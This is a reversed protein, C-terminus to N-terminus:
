LKADLERRASIGYIGRPDLEAARRFHDRAEVRQNQSQLMYGYIIQLEALDTVHELPVRMIAAEIQTRASAPDGLLATLWGRMGDYYTSPPRRNKRYDRLANNLYLQARDPQNRLLALRATLLNSPSTKAGLANAQELLTEAETLRGDIGAIEALLGLFQIPILKSIESATDNKTSAARNKQLHEDIVERAIREADAIRGSQAYASAGLLKSEWNPASSMAQDVLPLLTDYDGRRLASEWQKQIPEVSSKTMRAILPIGIFLFALMGVLLIVVFAATSQDRSYGANRFAFAVGSAVFLLAFLVGLAAWSLRQQIRVDVTAATAANARQNAKIESVAQATL